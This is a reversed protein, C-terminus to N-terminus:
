LVKIIWNVAASAQVVTIQLTNAPEDIPTQTFLAVTSQDSMFSSKPNGSADSGSVLIANTAPGSGNEDDTFLYVDDNSPALSGFYHRHPPSAFSVTDSGFSTGTARTGSGVLARNQLNPLNFTTSSDGAGWRTGYRQFLTAYTTRSVPQGACIMWRDSPLTDSGYAVITGIPTMRDEISKVVADSIEGSSDLLWELFAKFQAPLDLLAKLRDCVKAAESLITIDSGKVPSGM